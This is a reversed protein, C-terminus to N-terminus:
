SQRKVSKKKSASKAKTTPMGRVALRKASPVSALLSKLMAVDLQGDGISKKLPVGLDKSALDVLAEWAGLKVTADALAKELAAIKDKESKMVVEVVDRKPRYRGFEELWNKIQTTTTGCDLAAERISLRGDEIEKVLCAKLEEGFRKRSERIEM